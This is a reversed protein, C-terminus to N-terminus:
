ALVLSICTLMRRKPPLLSVFFVTAVLFYSEIARCSYSNIPSSAPGRSGAPGTTVALGIPGHPDTGSPLGTPHDNDADHNHIFTFCSPLQLNPFM